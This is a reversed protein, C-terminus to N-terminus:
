QAAAQAAYKETWEKANVDFQSRNEKYERAISSVLPDDPNPDTLLSTLSILVKPITLVPSWNSSLTDLCISGSSSINPHYIKTIFKLKPPKFPYEETFTIDVEFTGGAYPSDSPGRITARWHYIDENTGEVFPAASM